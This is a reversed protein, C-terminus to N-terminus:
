KIIYKPKLGPKFYEPDQYQRLVIRPALDKDLNNCLFLYEMNVRRLTKVARARIEGALKATPKVGPKLEVNLELFQDMKKDYDKRMAFKGTLVKLFPKHDLANHIHEPYINAAYFVMTHDSRGNLTVLPLRWANAPVRDKMAERAKSFEIVRGSDHLNFRILPIGGAMTFLLEDNVSEIHRFLPNYQFINPTINRGALHERLAGDNDMKKRLAITLPTEHGVLLTESSGYTNIASNPVKSSGAQEILYSRWTESFGESCFLMRLCLSRWDVGQKTGTEVVDKIFFPHGILVVQEYHKGLNDVVKLLQEKNNGVSVVTLGYKKPAALWSPLLTAIGSVYVGMPFGIVLLTSLKHM